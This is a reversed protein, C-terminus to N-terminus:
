SAVKRPRGRRAPPPVARKQEEDHIARAFEDPHALAVRLAAAYRANTVARARTTGPSGEARLRRMRAARDEAM